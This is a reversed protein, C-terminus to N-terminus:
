NILLKERLKNHYENHDKVCLWKVELPKSYDDHHAQVNEKTGCVECPQPVLRGARIANGVIVHARRKEPNNKIYKSKSENSRESNEVKPNDKARKRNRERESLIFEVDQMKRHHNERMEERFCIKCKHLYGDAMQPHKYFEALPKEVGCKFCKKMGVEIFFGEGLYTSAVSNEPSFVNM